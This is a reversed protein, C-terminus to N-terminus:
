SERTIKFASNADYWILEYIAFNCKELVSFGKFTFFFLLYYFLFPDVETSLTVIEELFMCLNCNSFGPALSSIKKGKTTKRSM